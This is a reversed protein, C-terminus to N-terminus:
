NWERIGGLLKYMKKINSLDCCRFLDNSNSIFLDLYSDYDAYVCQQKFSDAAM